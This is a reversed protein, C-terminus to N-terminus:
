SEFYWSPPPVWNLLAMQYFFQPPLQLLCSLQLSALLTQISINSFEESIYNRRPFVCTFFYSNGDCCHTNGMCFRITDRCFIQIVLFCKPQKMIVKERCIYCWDLMNKLIGLIVTKFFEIADRRRSRERLYIYIQSIICWLSMWYSFFLSLVM